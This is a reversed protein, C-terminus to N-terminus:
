CKSLLTAIQKSVAVFNIIIKLNFDMCICEAVYIESM